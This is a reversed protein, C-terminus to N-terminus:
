KALINEVIFSTKLETSWDDTSVSHSVSEISFVGNNEFIQPIQKIKFVQYASFGGIGDLELQAGMGLVNNSNMGSNQSIDGQMRESFRRALSEGELEGKYVLGAYGSGISSLITEVGKRAEDLDGGSIDVETDNLKEETLVYLPKSDGNQSHDGSSDNAGTEANSDRKLSNLAVDKGDFENKFLLPTSDNKANQAANENRNDLNSSRQMVIQTKITDDLNTDFNFSRLVSKHTNPRFVHEEEEAELISSVTNQAANKDVVRITNSDIEFEFNWIDFCAASCQNLIYELADFITENTDFAFEVFQHDVYLNYLFGQRAPNDLQIDTSEPQKSFKRFKGGSQGGVDVICVLPDVTRLNIPVEQLIDGFSSFNYKTDFFSSVITDSSDLTFTAPKTKKSSPNGDKRLSAYRNVLTEIEGWSIYYGVNQEGTEMLDIDLDSEVGQGIKVVDKNPQFTKVNLHETFNKKIWRFFSPVEEKEEKKEEENSESESELDEIRIQEQRELRLKRMAKSISMVETTCDYTGNEGPSYSFDVIAGSVFSYRGEGKKLQDYKPHDFQSKGKPSIEPNASSVGEEDSESSEADSSSLPKFM